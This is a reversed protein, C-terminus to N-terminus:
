DAARRRPIDVEVKDGVAESVAKRVVHLVLAEEDARIAAGPGARVVLIPKAQSEEEPEFLDDPVGPVRLDGFVGAGTFGDLFSTWAVAMAIEGIIYRVEPEFPDGM